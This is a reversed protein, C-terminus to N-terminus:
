ATHPAKQRLLVTVKAGSGFARNGVEIVGGHLEVMQRAVTLGLGAGPGSVTGKFFPDFVKQLEVPTLGPGADEIEFAAAMDGPHLKAGIRSSKLDVASNGVKREGVRIVIKGGEPSSQIANLAINVFVQRMEDVAMLAIPQTNERKVEMSIGAIGTAEALMACMDDVFGGLDVRSLKLRNEASSSILQSVIEDADKLATEVSEFVDEPDVEDAVSQRLNAVGMSVKALPRRIEHAFGGALHVVSEMKAAQILSRHSNRVQQHLGQLAMHTRIRAMLVPFDVPKTVYDNAALDLATVVDDTSDRGTVMIIPLEIASKHMRFEKLLDLGSVDPMEIDLLIVDVPRFQGDESIPVGENLCRRADDAKCAGAALFGDVTLKRVMLDTIIPDDDVVLVCQQSNSDM